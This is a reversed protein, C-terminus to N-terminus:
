KSVMFQVAISPPNRLTQLVVCSREAAFKLKEILMVDTGERVRLEVASAMQQFGVPVDQSMALAGRVDVEATVKVQLYQLEIGLINAVMRISSDQCAALAACLIDGPTPADHPGGLASHVGVPVKIGCGEMPEVTAHFPDLNNTSATVACDVILAADPSAVYKKRLPSQLAFVSTGSM